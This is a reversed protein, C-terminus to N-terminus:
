CILYYFLQPVGCQVEHIGSEQGDFVVDQTRGSLYSEIWKLTTSRIGYADLKRLLHRHGVTDFTKKLIM